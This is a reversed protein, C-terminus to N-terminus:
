PGPPSPKPHNATFWPCQNLVGLEDFYRQRGRWVKGQGRFGGEEGAGRSMRSVEGAGGGGKTSM